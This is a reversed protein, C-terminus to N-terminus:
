LELNAEADIICFEFSQLTMVEHFSILDDCFKGPKKEM